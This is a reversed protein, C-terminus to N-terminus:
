QKTPTGPHPIPKRPSVDETKGCSVCIQRTAMPLRIWDHGDKCSPKM